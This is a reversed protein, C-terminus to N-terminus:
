ERGGEASHNSERSRVTKQSEGLRSSVKCLCIGTRPVGRRYRVFLGGTSMYRRWVTAGAERARIKGGASTSNRTESADADQPVNTRERVERGVLLFLGLREVERTTPITITVTSTAISPRRATRQM